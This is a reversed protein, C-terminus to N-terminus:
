ATGFGASPLRTTAGRVAPSWAGGGRIRAQHCHSKTALTRQFNTRWTVEPEPSRPPRTAGRPSPCVPAPLTSRRFNRLPPAGTQRTLTTSGPLMTSLPPGSPRAYTCTRSAYRWFRSLTPWCKLCLNATPLVGPPFSKCLSAALWCIPVLITISSCVSFPVKAACFEPPGSLTVFISAATVVDTLSWTPTLFTLCISCRDAVCYLDGDLRVRLGGNCHFVIRNKCGCLGQLTQPSKDPVFGGITKRERWTCSSVFPRQWGPSFSL